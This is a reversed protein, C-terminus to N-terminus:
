PRAEPTAPRYTVPHRCQAEVQGEEDLGETAQPPSDARKRALRRIYGLALLRSLEARREPVSVAAADRTATM